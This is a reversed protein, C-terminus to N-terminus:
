AESDVVLRLIREGLSHSREELGWITQQGKPIVEGRVALFFRLAELVDDETFVYTVRTTAPEVHVEKELKKSRGEIIIVYKIM